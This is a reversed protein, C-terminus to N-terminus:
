VKPLRLRPGRREDRIDVEKEQKWHSICFFFFFLDTNDQGFVLMVPENSNACAGLASDWLGKGVQVLDEKWPQSPGLGLHSTNPHKGDPHVAETASTLKHVYM